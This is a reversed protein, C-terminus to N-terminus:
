EAAEGSRRRALAADFGGLVSELATRAELTTGEVDEKMIALSMRAGALVTSLEHTTLTLSWVGPRIEDIKM